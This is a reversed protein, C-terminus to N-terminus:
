GICRENIIKRLWGESVHCNRKWEVGCYGSMRVDQCGYKLEITCDKNMTVFLGWRNTKIETTM